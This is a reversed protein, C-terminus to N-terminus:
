KVKRSYREKLNAEIFTGLGKGAIALTKMERINKPDASQNTYRYVTHNTFRITVADKKLEYAAVKSVKSLNLYRKFLKYRTPSKQM